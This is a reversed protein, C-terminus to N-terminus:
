LIAGRWVAFRGPAIIKRVFRNLRGAIIVSRDRSDSLQFFYITM